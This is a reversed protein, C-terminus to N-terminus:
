RVEKFDFYLLRRTTSLWGECTMLVVRPTEPEEYLVSTDSPDVFRDHTYSYVFIYGTDSTVLLEDGLAVQKVPELVASSNHGYIMTQGMEDSLPKTMIAYQAKDDTLTWNQTVADYNGDIVERVLGIRPLEIRRPLGTRHELEVPTVLQVTPAVIPATPAAQVPPAVYFYIGAASGIVV